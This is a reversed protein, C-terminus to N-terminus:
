FIFLWVQISKKRAHAFTVCINKLPVGDGLSQRCNKRAKFGVNPDDFKVFLKTVEDAEYAFSLIVGMGGKVLGNPTDISKVLTIGAGVKLRLVTELGATDRRNSTANSTPSGDFYTPVKPKTDKAEINVEDHNRRKLLFENHEQASDFIAFFHITGLPYQPHDRSLPLVRNKLANVDADTQGAVRLRSLIQPFPKDDKQRMTKFLENFSFQKWIDQIAM